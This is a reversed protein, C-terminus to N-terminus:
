ADIQAARSRMLVLGPSALLVLMLVGGLLLGEPRDRLAISAVEGAWWAVAVWRMWALNCLFSSVFFATGMAGAAAADIWWTDRNGAVVAALGLITLPIGCGLWLMQLALTMPPRPRCTQGRSALRQPLRRLSYLWPLVICAAWLWRPNAMWVDHVRAYTGLYGAAIAIGWVLIDPGWTVAVSRGQEITRRIFAIDDRATDENMAVEM